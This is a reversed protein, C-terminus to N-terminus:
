DTNVMSLPIFLVLNEGSKEIGSELTFFINDAVLYCIDNYTTMRLMTTRASIVTEDPYENLYVDNLKLALLEKFREIDIGEPADEYDLHIFNEYSIPDRFVREHPHGCGSAERIQLVLNDDPPPLPPEDSTSSLTSNDTTVPKTDTTGSPSATRGNCSLTFSLLLALCLAFILTKKM